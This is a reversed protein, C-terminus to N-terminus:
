IPELRVLVGGGNSFNKRWVTASSPVPRGTMVLGETAGTENAGIWGTFRGQRDFRHISHGRFDIAFLAGDPGFMCTVPGTLQPADGCGAGGPEMQWGTQGSGAGARPRGLWGRFRWEHDFRIVRHADFDAVYVDGDGGVSIGIPRVFPQVIIVDGDGWPRTQVSWSNCGARWELFRYRISRTLSSFYKM